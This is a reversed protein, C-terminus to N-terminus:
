GEEMSKEATKECHCIAASHVHKKRRFWSDTRIKTPSSISLTQNSLCVNRTEQGDSCWRRFSRDDAGLFHHETSLERFSLCPTQSICMRAIRRQSRLSVPLQKQNEIVRRDRLSHARGTEVQEETEKEDHPPKSTLKQADKEKRVAYASEKHYSQYVHVTPNQFQKVRCVRLIGVCRTPSGRFDAFFSQTKLPLPKTERLLTIEIIGPDVIQDVFFWDRSNRPGTPGSAPIRVHGIFHSCM